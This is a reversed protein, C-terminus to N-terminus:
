SLYEGLKKRVSNLRWKVTGVPMDLEQAIRKIKIGYIYFMVAIDREPEPLLGIAHMVTNREVAENQLDFPSPIDEAKEQEVFPKRARLMDIAVHKVLTRMFADPTDIHTANNKSYDVLKLMAASAADEGDSAGLIYAADVSMKRHYEIFIPELASMDGSRIRELLMNFKHETM